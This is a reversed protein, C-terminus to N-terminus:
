ANPKVHGDAFFDFGQTILCSMGNDFTRFAVWHGGDGLWIELISGTEDVGSVAREMGSTAMGVYADLTPGCLPEQAMAPACMSLGLLSALAFMTKKM